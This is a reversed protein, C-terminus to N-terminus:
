EAGAHDRAVALKESIAHSVSRITCRTGALDKDSLSVEFASEIERILDAADLEDWYVTLDDDPQLKEADYGVMHKAFIRRVSVAVAGVNPSRSFHESVMASDTMPDRDAVEKEFRRLARLSPDLCWMLLATFVFVMVFYTATSM